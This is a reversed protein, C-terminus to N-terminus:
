LGPGKDSPSLDQGFCLINGDIDAVEFDRCGYPKETIESKASIGNGNVQDAFADVDALYLYAAWNDGTGKADVDRALGLTINDMHVIAFNASGDENQWTGALDFGLGKTYFDASKEVDKVSLIPMSRHGQIM